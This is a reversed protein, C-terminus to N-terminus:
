ILMKESLSQLLNSVGTAFSEEPTLLSLVLIGPTEFDFFFGPHVLTHHNELLHLCISEDTQTSGPPCLVQLCAYWGADPRLLRFGRQDISSLYQLNNRIRRLIPTQFDASYRFWAPMANITFANPSLYHDAMHELHELAKAKLHDPGSVHIWSLKAQPLALVKSLGNLTFTLCGSNSVSSPVRSSPDLPYDAFVEDVILALSHDACYGSIHQYDADSLVSGTPNNPSVCVIARTTPRISAPIAPLENRWHPSIWRIPFTDTKIDNLEALEHILPYTPSALLIRDYPDCLLRFVMSYAESTSSTLVLDDPDVTYGRRLYYDAIGARATADGKSVPAYTLSKTDKLANLISASDPRELGCRTPNSVTLDLIEHGQSRIHQLSQTLQNPKHDSPMRIAFRFPCPSMISM